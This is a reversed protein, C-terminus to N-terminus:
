SRYKLVCTDGNGREERGLQVLALKQQLGQGAVAGQVEEKSEPGHQEVCCCCHLASFRKKLAKEPVFTNNSVVQTVTGTCSRLCTM